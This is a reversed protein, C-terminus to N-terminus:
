SFLKLSQLQEASAFKSRQEGLLVRVTGAVLSLVRMERGTGGCQTNERSAVLLM